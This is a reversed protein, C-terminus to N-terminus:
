ASRERPTRQSRPALERARIVEHDFEVVDCHPARCYYIERGKTDRGVLHGPKGCVLCPLAAAM